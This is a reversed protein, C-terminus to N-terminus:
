IKLVRELKLNIIDVEKENFTRKKKNLYEIFDVIFSKNLEIVVSKKYGKKLYKLYKTLTYHSLYTRVDGVNLECLDAIEKVTFFM